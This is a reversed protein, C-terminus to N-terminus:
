ATPPTTVVQAIEEVKSTVTAVGDKLTTTDSRLVSIGGGNSKSQSDVVALASPVTLLKGMPSSPNLPNAAAGGTDGVEHDRLAWMDKIFQRLSRKPRDPYGVSADLVAVAICDKGDASKAWTTMLKNFDTQNVPLEGSQELQTIRAFLKSWPFNLGPDTHSGHDEPFANTIDVHGCFGHKGARLQSTTLRVLPFRTAGFKKRIAVCLRAAQEISGASAADSWQSLDQAAHGCVEIQIGIDNGHTRAAHAEDSTKVSQITSDQDVFFHTSTGDTRRQDYSAGNEASQLGESGETTHVVIVTPQGSKRGSTWSKAPVWKYQPFETSQTMGDGKKDM